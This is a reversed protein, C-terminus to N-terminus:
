DNGIALMIAASHRQQAFPFTGFVASIAMSSVEANRAPLRLLPLEVGELSTAAVTGGADVPPQGILEVALDLVCAPENPVSAVGLGSIEALGAITLPARALLRGNRPMVFTQDDCVLRAFGGAMTWRKVLAMALLTKGTGSAGLILVGRDGLVVTSGHLNVADVPMGERPSRNM